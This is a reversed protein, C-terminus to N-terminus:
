RHAQATAHCIRFIVFEAPRVPAVGIECILRGNEIDSQTMTGQDCRVFFAQQPTQGLLAGARWQLMLFNEISGRVRGWLTADNPEFVVWQTGERISRDLFIFLRRVSVYKWQPDSALTRAGWVLIGRDAFRRIANVGRPSLAAEAADGIDLALAVAGRVAQNAPSRFVGRESDTRAYVGLVHGGPPVTRQAGSQPDRIVLWPFYFAAYPSDAVTMRPDLAGVDSVGQECDVV